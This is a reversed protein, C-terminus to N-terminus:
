KFTLQQLLLVLFFGMGMMVQSQFFYLEFEGQLGTHRRACIIFNPEGSVVGDCV